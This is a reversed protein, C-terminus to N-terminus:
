GRRAVFFSHGGRVLVTRRPGVRTTVSVIGESVSVRTGQCTEVVRYVTM